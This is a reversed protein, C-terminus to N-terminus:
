SSLEISRDRAAKMAEYVIEGWKESEFVALAAATTGKPSTVNERLTKADKGSENLMAASGVLTQVVLLKADESSLGLKVAANIMAEVFGFFYAPGSGSTATVVDMLDEELVLVKGSGALLKEVWKLDEDTARSGGAVASMGNSILLPTNPMVRVVRVSSDVLSEIKKSKVGACLSVLLASKSIEGSLSKLTEEVDQPKVALLILDSGLISDTGIGYKEVLEQSREARKERIKIAAPEYGVRLLASIMAEGMVGAGIVAPQKFSM